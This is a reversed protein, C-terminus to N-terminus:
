VYSFHNEQLAAMLQTSRAVAVSVIESEGDSSWRGTHGEGKGRELSTVRHQSILQGTM